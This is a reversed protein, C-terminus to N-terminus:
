LVMDNSSFAKTKTLLSVLFLPSSWIHFLHVDVLNKCICVFVLNLCSFMLRFTGLNSYNKVIWKVCFTLLM